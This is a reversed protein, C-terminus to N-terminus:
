RADILTEERSGFLGQPRYTMLLMLGLGVLIWRVAAVEQASLLWDPIFGIGVAQRLVSETFSMLFWFLISGVVPGFVRGPGGLIVVAYALFTFIPQFSDPNVSQTQVAFFVGALSGIAGGIALSQLKYGFVNKGLSRAADEDERIAKLVRGWPARTLAWVLWVSLAVVIWGVLIAWLTNADWTIKWVGYIGRPFPNLAYFEDAFKQIGFVGQTLPELASSRTMLRLIEAAAITVIALYDERLRLTPLGYILGLVVAAGIGILIGLWLPGGLNVTIATGYGGVLLSGVHGFNLLGTYGFMVNLGVGALAFMVASTGLSSRIADVFSQLLDFEM